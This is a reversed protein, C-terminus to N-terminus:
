RSSSRLRSTPSIRKPWVPNTPVCTVSPDNRSAGGSYFEDPGDSRLTALTDALAPQRFLEGIRMPAGHPRFVRDFDVTGILDRNEPDDLHTALSAPVSVGDRAATEAAWLTSSWSARSGLRRM